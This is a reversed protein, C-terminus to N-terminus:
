ALGAPGLVAALRQALQEMNFPKTLYGSVGAQRAALVHDRQNEATIMVFPTRVLAPTRRVLKLLDLGTVPKMNWDSLILDYINTEIRRAAETPDTVVEINRVGLRRMLAAVYKAMALHDDVVLVRLAVLELQM